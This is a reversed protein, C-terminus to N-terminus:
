YDLVALAERIYLVIVCVHWRVIVLHATVHTFTSESM